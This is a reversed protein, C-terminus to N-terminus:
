LPKRVDRRIIWERRVLDGEALLKEPVFAPGPRPGDGAHTTVLGLMPPAIGLLEGQVKGPLWGRAVGWGNDIPEEAHLLM